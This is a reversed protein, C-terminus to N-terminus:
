HTEPNKGFAYVAIYYPGADSFDFFINRNDPNWVENERLPEGGTSGLTMDVPTKFAVLYEYYEVGEIRIIGGGQIEVKLLAGHRFAYAGTPTMLLAATLVMQCVVFVFQTHQKKMIVALITTSM